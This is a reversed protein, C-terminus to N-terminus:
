ITFSEMWISAGESLDVATGEESSVVTGMSASLWKFFSSFKTGKLKMAPIQGQINQLVQMNANDVGIPLFVYKKESTDKKIRNALASVDQGADPEGDTILIIWPRYYPQGTSKYWKKRNNVIDIAEEVADVLATDGDAMLGPMEIDSILTPSQIVNVSDGFTVVALELRQSTTEDNEIDTYFSQLGEVLNDLKSIGGTVINYNKGDVFVTQGTAVATSDDVIENMSGSLDLVLVCLCKQEYNEAVESSFDNKAM